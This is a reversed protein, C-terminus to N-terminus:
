ERAPASVTSIRTEPGDDFFARTPYEHGIEHAVLAQLEEADLLTLVTESILIATREHLAVRAFPVETVKIEYVSDRETRQLLRSLGALKRRVSDDLNIVEGEAPLMSLM